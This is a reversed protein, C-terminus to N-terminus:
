HAEESIRVERIVLIHIKGPYTLEDEVARRVKLAIARAEADNTETDSVIVRLERGAQIAFADVVGPFRKAIKELSTMREIYGECSFTRAGPRTASISDATMVLPGLLSTHPVDCHHSEVANVIEDVEGAARLARAGAIAHSEENEENLAKGIDHFLGARKALEVNLGMESALTGALRATELSHDLTNQNYSLRYQLRGLLERITEPVNYVGVEDCAKTGIELTNKLAEERAEEFFYEISQPHIRGDEILRRLASAAIHRRFPDFCSVLVSGPTDDILLTAGTVQEFCKINRGERGILRGKVEEAPIKVIDSSQESNMKPAIRQMVTLLIRHSELRYEEESKELLERRIQRAEDCANEEAAKLIETRAEEFTMGAAREIKRAYETRLEALGRERAALEEKKSKIENERSSIQDARNKLIGERVSVKANREAYERELRLAEEKTRDQMEQIKARLKESESFWRRASLAGRWILVVFCLLITSLMSIILTEPSM